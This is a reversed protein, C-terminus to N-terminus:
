ASARLAALDIACRATKENYPNRSGAPFSIVQSYNGQCRSEGLSSFRFYENAYGNQWVQSHYTEAVDMKFPYRKGRHYCADGINLLNLGGKRLLKAVSNTTLFYWNAINHDYCYVSAARLLGWIIKRSIIHQNHLMDVEKTDAEKIEAREAQIEDIPYTVRRGRRMEKLVCLRSLEVSIGSRTNKINGNITVHQQIPLKQDYQFVLRMAGVWEGSEKHKVIFHASHKDWHDHEQAHSFDDKNEYGMEECYVKYRIRYHMERSKPTDALFAEFYDDFM